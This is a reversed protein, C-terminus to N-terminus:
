RCVKVIEACINVEIIDSKVFYGKIKLKGSDVATRRECKKIVANCM